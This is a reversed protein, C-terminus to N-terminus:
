TTSSAAKLEEKALFGSIFSGDNAFANASTAPKAAALKEREVELDDALEKAM